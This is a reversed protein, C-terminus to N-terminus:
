MHIELVQNGQLARLVVMMDAIKAQFKLISASILAMGM